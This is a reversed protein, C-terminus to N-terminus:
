RGKKRAEEERMAPEIVESHLTQWLEEDPTLLCLSGRETPRYPSGDGLRAVGGAEQHLLVGAAHDWPNLRTYIGFHMRGKLRALYEQGVCRANFVHGFRGRGGGWIERYASSFRVSRGYISGNLARDEKPRVVKMRRGDIYTGDGKSAMAMRSSLPDYIWGAVTEGKMVLAVIVAVIPLGFTFNATGDLPDLVWVPAEGELLSLRNRDEHVAEEGVVLSGPLLATLAAGLAKEMSLDVTTVFDGPNKEDIEAEDLTIFKPVLEHEAVERIIDAVRDLDPIM